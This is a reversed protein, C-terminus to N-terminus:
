APAGAGTRLIADRIALLMPRPTLKPVNHGAGECEVLEVLPHSRLLRRSEEDVFSPTVRTPREPLLPESGVLVTTPRSIRDVLGSYDRPEHGDRSVGLVNWLFTESGAPAKAPYARLPWADGTRLPPEVAVTGVIGPTALALAVLAGVSTGVVVAPRDGLRDSLAQSYAAGFVGVSTSVLPPCHNGPLHTRWLDVHPFRTQLLHLYTPHAFAGAVAFLVPRGTDRGWMHVPGFATEAEYRAEAEM